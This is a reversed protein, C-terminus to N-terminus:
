FEEEYEFDNPIIEFTLTTKALFSDTFSFKGNNDFFINENNERHLFTSLKNFTGYNILYNNGKIFQMNQEKSDTVTIVEMDESDFIVNESIGNVIINMYRYGDKTYDAKIDFIEGESIENRSGDQKFITAGFLFKVKNM